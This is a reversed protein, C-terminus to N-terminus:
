FKRDNSIGVDADDISPVSHFLMPQGIGVGGYKFNFTNDSCFFDPQSSEVPESAHIDGPNAYGEWHMAKVICGLLRAHWDDADQSM